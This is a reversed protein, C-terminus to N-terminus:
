QDLGTEEDCQSPDQLRTLSFIWELVRQNAKCSDAASPVDGGVAQGQVTGRVERPKLVYHGTPQNPCADSGQTLFQLPM